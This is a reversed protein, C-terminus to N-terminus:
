VAWQSWKRWIEFSIKLNNLIINRYTCEFSEVYLSASCYSTPTNIGVRYTSSMSIDIPRSLLPGLLVADTTMVTVSVHNWHWVLALLESLVNIFPALMVFSVVRRPHITLMRWQALLFPKLKRKFANPSLSNNHLASQEMSHSVRQGISAQVRSLETHGISLVFSKPYKGGLCEAGM